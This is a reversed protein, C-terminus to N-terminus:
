KAWHKVLKQSMEYYPSEPTLRSLQFIAQEANGMFGYALGLFYHERDVEPLRHEQALALSQSLLAIAAELHRQREAADLQVRHRRALALHSAGSYFYYDRVIALVTDNVAPALLQQAQLQLSTLLEVAGAYNLNKYETMAALFRNYFRELRLDDEREESPTRLAVGFQPTFAYPVQEDYQIGALLDPQQASKFMLYGGAVIVLAAIAFAWRRQGEGWQWSFKELATKFVTSPASAPIALVAPGERAILNVAEEGIKLEQFCTACQFYHEEFAIMDEEPLEGTLY